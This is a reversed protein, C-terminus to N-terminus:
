YKRIPPDTSSGKQGELVKRMRDREARAKRLQDTVQERKSYTAGALQIELREVEQQLRYLEQAILRISMFWKIMQHLSITECILTKM